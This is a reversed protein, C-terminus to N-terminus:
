SAVFNTVKVTVIETKKVQNESKQASCGDENVMEGFFNALDRALANLSAKPPSHHKQYVRGSAPRLKWVTGLEGLSGRVRKLM